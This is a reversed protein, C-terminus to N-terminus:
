TNLQTVHSVRDWFRDITLLEASLPITIHVKGLLLHNIPHSFSCLCLALLQPHHLDMTVIATRHQSFPMQPHFFHSLPYNHWWAQWTLNQWWYWFLLLSSQDYKWFDEKSKWMCVMLWTFVCFTIYSPFINDGKMVCSCLPDLVEKFTSLM